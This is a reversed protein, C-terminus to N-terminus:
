VEPGHPKTEKQFRTRTRGERVVGVCHCPLRRCCLQDRRREILLECKDLVPRLRGDGKFEKSVMFAHKPFSDENVNWTERKGTLLLLARMLPRRGGQNVSHSLEMNQQQDLHGPLCSQALFRAPSLLFLVAAQICVLATERM